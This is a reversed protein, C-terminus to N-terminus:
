HTSHSDPEHPEFALDYSVCFYYQYNLTTVSVLELSPVGRVTKLRRPFAGVDWIRSQLNLPYLWASPSRFVALSAKVAEVMRM